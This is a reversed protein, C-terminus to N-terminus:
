RVTCSMSLGSEAMKMASPAILNTHRELSAEIAYRLNQENASALTAAGTDAILKRAAVRFGDAGTANDQRAM